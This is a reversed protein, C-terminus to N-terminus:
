ASKQKCDHTTDIEGRGFKTLVFPCHPCKFQKMRLSPHEQCVKLHIQWTAADDFKRQCHVCQLM